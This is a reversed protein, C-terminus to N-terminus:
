THITKKCKRIHEIDNCLILVNEKTICLADNLDELVFDWTMAVDETDGNLEIDAEDFLWHWDNQMEGCFGFDKCGDRLLKIGYDHITKHDAKESLFFLVSYNELNLKNDMIDRDILGFQINRCYEEKEEESSTEPSLQCFLEEIEEDSM